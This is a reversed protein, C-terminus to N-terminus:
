DFEPSRPISELLDRITRHLIPHVVDAAIEALPELVFLREHMRPHPVTLGPEDIIENEFLLLDLDITRPGFRAGSGRERGHRREIILMFELLERPSLVTEIGAAANLYRPQIGPGVPETEVLTSVATLRVTGDSILDRLAGHITGERDGLNSGLAIWAQRGTSM